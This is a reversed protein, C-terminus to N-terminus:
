AIPLGGLLGAGASFGIGGRLSDAIKNQGNPGGLFIELLALTASATLSIVIIEELKLKHKSVLAAVMGVVLGELVYKLILKLVETLDFSAM